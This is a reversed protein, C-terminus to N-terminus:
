PTSRGCPGALLWGAFLDGLRLRVTATQGSGADVDVDVHRPAGVRLVSADCGTPPKLWLYRPTGDVTAPLPDADLALGAARIAVVRTTRGSPSVLVLRLRDRDVLRAVDSGRDAVRGRLLEQTGNMGAACLDALAPATVDVAIDRVLGDPSTFQLPPVRLAQPSTCDVEVAVRVDRRAAAAVDAGAPEVALIRVASWSDSRGTVRLPVAGLNLVSVQLVATRRDAGSVAPRLGSLSTDLGVVVASAGASALAVERRQADRWSGAGSWGLAAGLLAAGVLVAAVARRRRDPRVQAVAPVVAPVVAPAPPAPQAAPQAPPAPHAAVTVADPEATGVVERSM